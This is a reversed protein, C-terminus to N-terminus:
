LSWLNDTSLFSILVTSIFSLKWFWILVSNFFLDLLKDNNSPFNCVPTLLWLKFQQITLGVWWIFPFIIVFFLKKM